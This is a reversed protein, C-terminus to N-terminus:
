WIGSGAQVQESLDAILEEPLADPLDSKALIITKPAAASFATGLLSKSADSLVSGRGWREPRWDGVVTTASSGYIDLEKARKTSQELMRM